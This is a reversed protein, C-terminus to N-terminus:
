KLIRAKLVGRVTHFVKKSLWKSKKSKKKKPITKTVSKYVINYFDM